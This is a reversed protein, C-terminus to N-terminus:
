GIKIGMVFGAVAGLIGETKYEGLRDKLMVTYTKAHEIIISLHSNLIDQNLTIIHYYELVFVFTFGLGFIVLLIKFSKKLAYGISLGLLFSGGMNTYPITDFQENM